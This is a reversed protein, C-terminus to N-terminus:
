DDRVNWDEAEDDPHRHSTLKRHGNTRGHDYKGELLKAATDPRLFWDIDAKWGSENEHLWKADPIRAIANLWNGRWWPERLRTGIKARRAKSLSECRSVGKLANWESVVTEAAAEAAGAAPSPLPSPSPYPNFTTRKDETERGNRERKDETQRENTREIQSANQSQMDSPESEDSSGDSLKEAWEPVIVWYQGVKSKGGPKYFLWGSKIAATRVRNLRGVSGLGAVAMLQDNWYTVPGSYRKADEQHAVVTLLWCVEPGLTNAVATKTLKRCFKHAFHPPRKPYM